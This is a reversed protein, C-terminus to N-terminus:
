KDVLRGVSDFSPGGGGWPADVVGRPCYTDVWQWGSEAFVILNYFHLQVINM